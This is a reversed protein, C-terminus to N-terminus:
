TSLLSPNSGGHFKENNDWIVSHVRTFWKGGGAKV